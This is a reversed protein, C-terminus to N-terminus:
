KRSMWDDVLEPPILGGIIDDLHKVVAFHNEDEYEVLDAHQLHEAMWRIHSIPSNIDKTGHWIQIKDYAVDEFKFGWDTTLLRAEQVSPESGQAFAELLIRVTDDRRQATTKSPRTEDELLKWTSGEGLAESKQSEEQEKKTLAELTQDIWGKVMNTGVAWRASGVAGDAVIRLLSPTYIAALHTFWSSWMVDKIGAKDWPGAPALLGVRTMTEAPLARACAIAYPGGGSGGLVAFRELGAHKAFAAVDNPWDMVKRDPDYTSLGFGPRDLTYLKIRRRRAIPGAAEGELRSSPYGHFYILPYGEPHGYEAYGLTRGDPLTMTQSDANQSSMRRASLSLNVFGSVRSLSVQPRISNIPNLLGAGTKIAFMVVGNFSSSSDIFQRVKGRIPRTDAVTLDARLVVSRLLWLVALYAQFNLRSM